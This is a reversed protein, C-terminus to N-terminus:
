AVKEVLVSFTISGTASHDTTGGSYKFVLASGATTATTLAAGTAPFPVATTGWALSTASAAEISANPIVTYVSTGDTLQILRDGGAAYNTGGGQLRIDRVKYSDGTAAAIVTASGASDLAAATVAIDVWKELALTIGKSKQVLIDLTDVAKNADVVVAKSATVTGATM